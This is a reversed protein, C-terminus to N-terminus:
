GTSRRASRQLSSRAHRCRIHDFPFVFPKHVPEDVLELARRIALRARSDLGDEAEPRVILSREVSLFEQLRLHHRPRDASLGGAERAVLRPDIAQGDGGIAAAGERPAAAVDGLPAQAVAAVTRDADPVNGAALLDAAEFFM